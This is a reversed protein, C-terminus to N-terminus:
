SLTGGDVRIAEGNIHAAEESALFAVLSAVTEPGRFVRDPPMIRYLLKRDAGEPLKFEAHIPTTVSGPCVANARLGQGCYEIALTYTFALVGGKSASYAATWPHGALGATSAMNVVNGRAALLQPLAAQTMYFTGDLNVSLIRRWTELPLEHTHHFHLIGAINCLSDLKGFRRVAADVAARAAAPDSVDCVRAEADAGLEHVRKETEQLKQADLDVLFLAGGESAIREATARGIGSAAGTILVVKGSFRQM